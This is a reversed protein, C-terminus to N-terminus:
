GSRCSRGRRASSSPPPDGGGARDRTPGFAVALEEAISKGEEPAALTLVLEDSGEALEIELSPCCRAEAAVIRQLRGRTTPDSRFCLTHKGDECHHAILSSTGV